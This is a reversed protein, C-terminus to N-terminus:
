SGKVDKPLKGYQQKFAKSFYSLSSFGVRYAVESVNYKGETLMKLAVEMKYRKVLENPSIGFLDKIKYFMKSRSIKLESCIFTIDFNPDSLSGKMVEVLRKVFVRDSETMQSVDVNLIDPLEYESGKSLLRNKLLSSIQALLLSPEFPKTIYADAGYELGEVKSDLDTKATILIVPIRCTSAKSKIRSCLEIGDIGPMMIDSLIIDPLTGGKILGLAKEADYCCVVKYKSELMLSLYNAIDIDDDVVMVTEVPDSSSTDAKTYEHVPHTGESKTDEVDVDDYEEATYVTEDIPLALTFRVGEEDEMNETWLYGHHLEALAKTFSLGIGSGVRRINEGHRKIQYYRDFVKGMDEPSIPLGNNEVDICIFREVADDDRIVTRLALEAAEVEYVEIDIRGEDAKVFKLANSVLNSVMSDFKDPDLSILHKEDLGSINMKVNRYEAYELSVEIIEKLKATLDYNRRLKLKLAGSDMKNFDLIQNVLRNMRDIGIQMTSILHRDRESRHPDSAFQAVPGAIMTLPSRFDHATNGFLNHSMKHLMKEQEYNKRAQDLELSSRVRNKILILAGAAFVVLLALYIIKSLTSSWWPNFVRIDLEAGNVSDKDLTSADVRLKYKGPSLHSFYIINDNGIETWTEDQGELKFRYNATHYPRYDLLAFSISINNQDYRLKIQPNNFIVSDIVGDPHPYVYENNVKLNQFVIDFKKDTDIEINHCSVVGNSGGYVPVGDSMVCSCGRNFQHDGLGDDSTFNIIENKQINYRSIDNSTSVWINGLRDQEISSIAQSNIGNVQVCEDGEMYYLGFDRTGFWIRGKIDETLKILHFKEGIHRRYDIQDVEGTAPDLLVIPSKFMTLALKGNKLPHIDYIMGYSKEVETIKRLSSGGAEKEELQYLTGNGSLVWLSGGRDSFEMRQVSGEHIAIREKVVLDSESSFKLCIMDRGSALWTSNSNRNCSLYINYDSELGLTSMEVELGEGNRSSYCLNGDAIAWLGDESDCDLATVNKGKFFSIQKHNHNFLLGSAPIMAYGKESSGVWLNDRSDIYVVSPEIQPMRYPSGPDTEHFLHGSNRDFFWTGRDTVVVNMKKGIYILELEDVKDCIDHLWEPSAHFVQEQTNFCLSASQSYLLIHGNDNLVSAGAIFGDPYALRQIIRSESIDIHLIERSGVYWVCDNCSSYLAINSPLDKLPLPNFEFKEEKYKLLQPVHTVIVLSGSETEVLDKSGKMEVNMITRQFTDNSDYYCAGGYNINWHRGKSDTFFKRITSNGISNSQESRFYQYYEKGNYRNLGRDTGIWIHGFSDESFATVNYNSLTPSIKFSEDNLPTVGDSVAESCSFVVLLGFMLLAIKSMIKM